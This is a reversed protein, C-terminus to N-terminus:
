IMQGSFIKREEETMDRQYSSKDNHVVDVRGLLPRLKYRPYQVEAFGPYMGVTGGFYLVLATLIADQPLAGPWQAMIYPSLEDIVKDLKERDSFYEVLFERNLMAGGSGAFYM